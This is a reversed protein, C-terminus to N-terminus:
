IKIQNKKFLKIINKVSNADKVDFKKVKNSFKKELFSIINLSGLSDWEELNKSNTKLNIKNSKVNLIKALMNFLKKNENM